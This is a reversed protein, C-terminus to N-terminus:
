IEKTYKELDSYQSELYFDIKNNQNNNQKNIEKNKFIKDLFDIIDVSKKNCVGDTSYHEDGFLYIRKKNKKLYYMSVPGSILVM